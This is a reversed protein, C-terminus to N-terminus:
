RVYELTISRTFPEIYSKFYVMRDIDELDMVKLTPGPVEVEGYGKLFIKFKDRVPVAFLFPDKSKLFNDKIKQLNKFIMEKNMSAALCLKKYFEEIREYKNPIGKFRFDGNTAKALYMKRDISSIFIEFQHRLDLPMGAINTERLVRTTLFGDYQRIVIDSEALANRSIYESIISETTKRLLSTLEKNDKMMMGIQINRKTKDDKDINSLDFGNKKLINYHCSSIDYSYVGNLVLNLLKNIQM